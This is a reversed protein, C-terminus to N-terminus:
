EQVFFTRLYTQGNNWLRGGQFVIADVLCQNDDGGKRLRSFEAPLVDHELLQSMSTGHTMQAASNLSNPQALSSSSGARFQWGKGILNSAWENTTPDTNAHFIKTQLNGLFAYTESSNGEGGMVAQYNPLNQTLYVTSARASRATTQFLMDHRNAFFQAEDAWLFVPSGKRPDRRETARQWIYKFLIQAFLGVEYFEKVPLDILIVLGEHTFEPVINTTTCFLERLHGRLFCDAMGTFISVISSRPRDDLAPFERTWYNMTVQFDWRRPDSEPLREVKASGEELLAYCLSTERWAYAKSAIEAPTDDRIPSCHLPTPPASAIIDYLEPLSVRNRAIALLDVANRLLQKTALEWYPDEKGGGRKRQYTEILTYFLNVINETQRGGRGDRGYEYQLFNFRHLNEPSFVLLHQSRGTEECYREWAAREDNKVTLVLGGFGAKLFAKALASGSGSSKGSGTAGFIQIGEFADKLRFNGGVAVGGDSLVPFSLLVHQDSVSPASM